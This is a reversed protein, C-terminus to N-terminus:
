AAARRRIWRARWAPNAAHWLMLAAIGAGTLTPLYMLPWLQANASVQSSLTGRLGDLVVLLGFAFVIERWVGFRSFGGILLTSFGILAATVCFLPRAFRAHLTEAM